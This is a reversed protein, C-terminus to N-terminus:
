CLTRHRTEGRFVKLIDLLSKRQTVFSSPIRKYQEIQQLFSDWGQVTQMHKLVFKLRDERSGHYPSQQTRQEEEVERLIKRILNKM